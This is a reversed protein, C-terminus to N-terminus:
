VVTKPLYVSLEKALHQGLQHSLVAADFLDFSEDRRRALDIMAGLVESEHGPQYRFCFKRRGKALCLTHTSPATMNNTSAM